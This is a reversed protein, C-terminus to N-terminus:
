GEGESGMLQEVVTQNGIEINRAVMTMATEPTFKRQDLLGVLNGVFQAALACIDASDLDAGEEGVAKKWANMLAIHEETPEILLGHKTITM